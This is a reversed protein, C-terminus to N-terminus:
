SLLDDVKLKLVAGCPRLQLVDRRHAAPAAFRIRPFQIWCRRLIKAVCRAHQKEVVYVKSQVRIHRTRRRALRVPFRVTDAGCRALLGLTSTGTALPSTRAPVGRSTVSSAPVQPAALCQARAFDIRVADPGHRYRLLPCGASGFSSGCRDYLTFSTRVREAAIKRAM